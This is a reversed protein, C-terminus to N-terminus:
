EGTGNEVISQTFYHEAYEKISETAEKRVDHIDPYINNGIWVFYDFLLSEDLVEYEVFRPKFYERMSADRCLIKSMNDIGEQLEEDSNNHRYEEVLVSIKENDPEGINATNFMTSGVSLLLIMCVLAVCAGAFTNIKGLTKGIVLKKLLPAILWVLLIAGLILIIFGVAFSLTPNEKDFFILGIPAAITPAVCATTIIAILTCIQTILGQRVGLIIAFLLAVIIIIDVIM